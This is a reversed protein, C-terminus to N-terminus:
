AQLSKDDQFTVPTSFESGDHNLPNFLVKRIELSIQYDGIATNDEHQHQHDDFNLKRPSRRFKPRLRRDAKPARCLEEARQMWTPKNSGDNTPPTVNGAASAAYPTMAKKPPTQHKLVKSSNNLTSSMKHLTLSASRLSAPAPCKM